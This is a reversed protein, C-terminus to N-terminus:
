APVLEVHRVKLRVGRAAELLEPSALVPVSLVREGDVAGDDDSVYLRLYALHGVAEPPIM